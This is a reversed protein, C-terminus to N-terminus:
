WARSELRGAIWGFTMAVGVTGGAGWYAQGAPSAACNGAAYVGDIPEGDVSLVRAREDTVPGGKTDLAGPGLLICYYPGQGSLPHMWGARAGPRAEQSWFRDIAAEGRGFDLDRGETAMANFRELTHALNAEFEPALTVGGTHAAFKALRVRIGAVLGPWDPASIIYERLEGRPPTPFRHRAYRPDDALPGNLLVDDFVWFMLYNPYERRTADWTFHVQGRENYPAKENLAHVGYRNVMFMSDGYPVYVDRQTARNRAALEVLSQCWWAQTMNGLQAGLQMGIRAFDGRSGEVAAGGLVPGRLHAAAMPENHLFGGTGFVIGQRAGIFEARHGVRAELGVVDGADNRIANMVRSNLQVQGGLKEFAAQLRDIFIQGEGPDIGRRHGPWVKPRLSRGVPARDEPLGLTPHDPNYRTPYGSKAMYRLADERPDAVGRARMFRNNPIWITTSSKASTGGTFAAQELVLVRSGAKAAAWAATLAAAGSGVAIVDVVRTWEAGWPENNDDLSM